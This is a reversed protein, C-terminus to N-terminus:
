KINKETVSKFRPLTEKIFDKSSGPPLELRQQISSIYEVFQKSNENHIYRESRKNCIVHEVIYYLIIPFAIGLLTGVLLQYISIDCMNEGNDDKKEKIQFIPFYMPQHAGVGQPPIRRTRGGVMRALRCGKSHNREHGVNKKLDGMYEKKYKPARSPLQVWM